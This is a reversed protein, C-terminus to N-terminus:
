LLPLNGLSDPKGVADVISSDLSMKIEEANLKIDGYVVEGQGYIYVNNQGRMVMSDKAVLEVIHDLDVKARVIRSKPKALTDPSLVSSPVSDPVVISDGVLLTSVISDSAAQAFAGVASFMLMIVIYLQIRQM